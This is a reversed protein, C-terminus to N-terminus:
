RKAIDLGLGRLIGFAKAIRGDRVIKVPWCDGNGAMRRAGARDANRKDSRALM